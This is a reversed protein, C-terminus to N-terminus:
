RWKIERDKPEKEWVLYVLSNIAGLRTHDYQAYADHLELKHM